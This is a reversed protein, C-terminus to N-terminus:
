IKEQHLAAFASRLRLPQRHTGRLKAGATRVQKRSCKSLAAALFFILGSVFYPKKSTGEFVPVAFNGPIGPPNFIQETLPVEVTEQCNRPAAPFGPEPNQHWRCEWGRHAAPDSKERINCDRSRGEVRHTRRRNEVSRWISALPTKLPARYISQKNM